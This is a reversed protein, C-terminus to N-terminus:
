TCIRFHGRGGNEEEQRGERRDEEEGFCLGRGQGSRLDPEYKGSARARGNAMEVLSLVKTTIACSEGAAAEEVVVSPSPSPSQSSAQRSFSSSSSSSSPPDLLEPSSSLTGHLLYYRPFLM